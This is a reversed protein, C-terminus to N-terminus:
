KKMMGEMVNAMMTKMEEMLRANEESLSGIVGKLMVREEEHRQKQQQQEERREGDHADLGSRERKREKELELRARLQAISSTTTANEGGLTREDDSSSPSLDLPM